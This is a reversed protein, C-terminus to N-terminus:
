EQQPSLFCLQVGNSTCNLSTRVPGKHNSKATTEEVYKAQLSFQSNIIGVYLRTILSANIQTDMNAIIFLYTERPLHSKASGARILGTTCPNIGLATSPPSLSSGGHHTNSFVSVRPNIVGAREKWVTEELSGKWVSVKQASFAWTECGYCGTVAHVSNWASNFSKLTYSLYIWSYNAIKEQTISLPSTSLHSECAVLRLVLMSVM